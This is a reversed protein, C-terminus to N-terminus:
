WDPPSPTDAEDVYGNENLLRGNRLRISKKGLHIDQHATDCLLVTEDLSTRRHTAYDRAHHPILPILPDPTGPCCGEGACRNDFQARAAKAETATITRASHVVGLPKWGRSMALTTVHADCWWSRLLARSLAQGTAGRAPPAGPSADVLRTSLTATLQVPVKGHVGGLGASLYRECGRDFADHLRKSRSRQPVLQQDPPEPRRRLAQREWEPRPDPDAWPDRGVGEAAAARAHARAATDLPNMPDRRAEAGLLAFVREACGPTLTAELHWTGDDNRGLSLARKDQAAQERDELISPVVALVVDELATPLAVPSLAIGRLVCAQELRDAQSGGGQHIAAVRQELDALVTADGPDDPSLGCRDRAIVDVTDDVVAAVVPEGPQGDIQGDPRDVHKRMTAM